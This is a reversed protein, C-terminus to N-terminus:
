HAQRAFWNKNKLVPVLKRSDFLAAQQGDILGLVQKKGPQPYVTLSYTKGGIDGVQIDIGQTIRIISDYALAETDTLYQDVTLLSVADVFDNLRTTDVNAIGKVEFYTKGMDIEFDNSPNENGTFKLSQFNRWNLHFVYKDKWGTEDLEFIGSTYVRYGPIVMVYVADDKAFYAQTKSANGGATFTLETKGQSVLTVQVGTAKLEVNLTDAIKGSVQRKPQAQQLTAFLVDVMGRDATTGNVRWRTGDFTLLTKHQQKQLIVQDIAKLDAVQFIHQDVQVYRSRNVWYVAVATLVTLVCLSILLWLNKKEQM